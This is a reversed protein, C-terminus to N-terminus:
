SLETGQLAGPLSVIEVKALEAWRWPFDSSLISQKRVKICIGDAGPDTGYIAFVVCFLSFAAVFGLRLCAAM